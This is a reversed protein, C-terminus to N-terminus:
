KVKELLEPNERFNGIIEFCLWSNDFARGSNLIMSNRIDKIMDIKFNEEKGDLWSKVIDGVFIKKKNKDKHGTYQMLREELEFPLYSPHPVSYQDYIRRLFSSLYQDDQYFMGGECITRLMPADKIWARFELRNEM